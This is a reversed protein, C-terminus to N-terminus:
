AKKQVNKGNPIGRAEECTEGGVSLVGWIKEQRSKDHAGLQPGLRSEESPSKGRM